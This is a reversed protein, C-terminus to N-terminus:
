QSGTVWPFFIDLFIKFEQIVDTSIVRLRCYLASYVDTSIYNRIQARQLLSMIIYVMQYDNQICDCICKFFSIQIYRVCFSVTFWYSLFFLIDIFFKFDQLVDTSIVRLRWYLASYVDTSIYNRIQARQLLSM